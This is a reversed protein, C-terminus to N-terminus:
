PERDCYRAFIEASTIGRGGVPMGEQIWNTLKEPTRFLLVRNSGYYRAREWIEGLVDPSWGSIDDRGRIPGFVLMAAPLETAILQQIEYELKQEATGNSHQSKISLLVIDDLRTIAVFDVLAHRNERQHYPALLRVKCQEAFQGRVPFLTMRSARLEELSVARNRCYGQLLLLNRIIEQCRLGNFVATQGGKETM